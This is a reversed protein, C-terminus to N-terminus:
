LFLFSHVGKQTTSAVVAATIDLQFSQPQKWERLNSWSNLDAELCFSLFVYWILDMFVSMCISSSVFPNRHYATNIVFGETDDVSLSLGMHGELVIIDIGEHAM